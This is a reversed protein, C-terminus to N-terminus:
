DEEGVFTIIKLVQIKRTGVSNKMERKLRKRRLRLSAQTRTKWKTKIM